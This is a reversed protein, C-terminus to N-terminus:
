REPLGALRLGEAMRDGWQPFQRFMPLSRYQEITFGPHAAVLKQAAWGAIELDGSMGSWAALYRYLISVDPHSSILERTIEIARSPSGAMAISAAMGIKMNFALPDMPSLTMAQQFREAARDADGRYIAVWGFRAWAWANNPDLALAQEILTTARRQDGCISMAAGAAALATPDDSISGAAEAAALAMELDHKSNDNWLYAANAAHCWALLAHARGYAPDIAIAERLLKIAQNNTEDRGGWLHPYARM